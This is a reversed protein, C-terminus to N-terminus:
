EDCIIYIHRWIVVEKLQLIDHDDSLTLWKEFKYVQFSPQLHHSICM